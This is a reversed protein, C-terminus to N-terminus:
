SSHASLTFVPPSVWLSGLIGFVAASTAAQNQWERRHNREGGQHTKATRQLHLSPRRQVVPLERGWRNQNRHDDAGSGPAPDQHRRCDRNGEPVGPHIDETRAPAASRERHHGPGAADVKGAARPDPPSGRQVMAGGRIEIDTIMREEGSIELPIGPTYGRERILIAHRCATISIRKKM